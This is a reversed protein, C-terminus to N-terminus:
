NNHSQEEITQRQKDAANQLLLEVGKAKEIAQEQDKFIHEKSSKDKTAPADERSCGIVILLSM